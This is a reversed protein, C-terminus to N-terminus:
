LWRVFSHWLYQAAEQATMNTTDINSMSSGAISAMQARLSLVGKDSLTINENYSDDRAAGSSYYISLRQSFSKKLWIRCSGKIKGDKYVSATFDNSSQEQLDTQFASDQQELDKLALEFYQRVESFSAKLFQDIELDTLDKKVKPFCLPSTAGANLVYHGPFEAKPHSLKQGPFKPRSAPKKRKGDLGALLATAASDEDLDQIRIQVISSLLGTPTCSRVMVPVLARKLGTSDSEFAAAWEPATFLSKLYDPSLVMITRKASTAADQMKLVFNSGPLFDWAQVIVSYHAEELIYSIWEAWPKDVNTYSVFFDTM